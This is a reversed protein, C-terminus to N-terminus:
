LPLTIMEKKLLNDVFKTHLEEDYFVIQVSFTHEPSSGWVGNEDERSTSPHVLGWQKRHSAEQGAFDQYLAKWFRQESEVAQEKTDHHFNYCFLEKYM